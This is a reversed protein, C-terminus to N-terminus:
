AGAHESRKSVHWPLFVREAVDVAFFLITGLVSLILVGAFILATNFEGQARLIVFGLGRSSAVFEGVIAGILALGIAVKMGAFLSPLANPFRIKFLIQMRSGGLSRALDLMDPDVSRLGLVVDIVIAFIAVFLAMAIKPEAGTGLWVIFLPAIAIKPISNLTVLLTYLVREIHRSQIIAVAMAVGLVVALVFGIITPEVTYYTHLALWSFRQVLEVMVQSLAPVLFEPPRLLRVGGEWLLLTAAIVIIVTRTGSTARWWAHWRM